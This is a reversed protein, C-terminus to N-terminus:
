EIDKVSTIKKTRGEKIDKESGNIQRMTDENTEIMVTELARNLEAKTVMSREIMQLKKYIDGLNVATEM